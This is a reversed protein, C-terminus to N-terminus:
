QTIRSLSRKKTGKSKNRMKSLMFDLATNEDVTSAIDDSQEQFNIVEFDNPKVDDWDIDMFDLFNHLEEANKRTEQEKRDKYAQEEIQKL